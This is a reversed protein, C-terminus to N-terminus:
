LCQESLVGIIISDTHVSSVSHESKCLEDQWFLYLFFCSNVTERVKKVPHLM